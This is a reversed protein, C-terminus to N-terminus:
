QRQSAGAWRRRRVRAQLRRMLRRVDRRAADIGRSTDIVVDAGARKVSDPTQKALIAEFAKATMGPRALVRQRQVEPPASVVVIVDVLDEAGTEFLLPIDLVAVAVGDARAKRLFRRRARAVLPHIGAELAAFAAADGRVRAGLAARDVGDQTVCDPFLRAVLRTGAAGPAYLAHVAADADFVAAGCDAFLKATTTKGMGISGTLGITLM